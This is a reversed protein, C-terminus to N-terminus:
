PRVKKHVQGVVVEHETMSIHLEATEEADDESEHIGGIHMECAPCFVRFVQQDKYDTEVEVNVREVEQLQFSM